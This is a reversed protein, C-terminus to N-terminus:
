LSYLFERLLLASIITQETHEKLYNYMKNNGEIYLVGDMIAIPIVNEKVKKNSFDTQITSIADDFQANQHGGFDTLFKAEGIVYNNNFKAVFDLGKNRNYGLHKEAFLKMKNDSVNLICNEKKKIFLEEDTLVDVGITKLDVWRKFMPGIQRNTEKPQICKKIMEEFGMSYLSGAIRNVTEPNREIATNDRKLYPIYSDKIPFLEWKLLAKILDKNKREKFAKSIKEELAPPIERELNPSIPYVKYLEDLYNRQQAFEASQKTWFNM